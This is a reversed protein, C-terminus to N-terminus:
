ARKQMRKLWAYGSDDNQLWTGAQTFSDVQDDHSGVPFNAHEEVWEGLWPAGDPLHANGGLVLSQCAAARAEKTDKPDIRVIGPVEGELYAIVSDGNAKGEVLVTIGKFGRGRLHVVAARLEDACRKANWHGRAYYLLFLDAGRTGWATIVNWDNHKADRFSADLSVVVREFKEPLPRAPGAWAGEPRQGSCDPATGDPKHYRWADRPFMGGSAPSPSQQMQGAYGYAGLRGPQKESECFAQPFREPHLLEGAVARPDRWGYTTTRARPPDYEMPIMVHEWLGSKLVHGSLDDEHLRQMIIVRMCRLQDTVRNHVSADYRALVAQRKYDTLDKTDHPDDIVLIDSGEGIINANLGKAKRTGRRTNAFHNLADENPKITWEAGLTAKIDLYWRSGLVERCYRSDRSAVSPNASICTITLTPDQLWVWAPFFVSVVMSKGSRPPVNFLLNQARQKFETGELRARRAAVLDEFCWQLHNCLAEIHWNWDLPSGPHLLQWGLRVFHSLSKKALVAEITARPPLSSAMDALRDLHSLSDPLTM